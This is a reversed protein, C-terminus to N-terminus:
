LKLTEPRLTSYNIVTYQVIYIILIVTYQVSYMVLLQNNYLTCLQYINITFLVYNIGTILVSYM